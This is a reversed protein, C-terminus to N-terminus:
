GTNPAEERRRAPRRRPVMRDRRRHAARRRIKGSAASKETSSTTSSASSRRKSLSGDPAPRRATLKIIHYGDPTAVVDSVHGHTMSFAVNGFPRLRAWSSAARRTAAIAAALRPQRMRPTRRPSNPSTRAATSESSSRKPKALAAAVARRRRSTSASSIHSVRRREPQDFEAPYKDYHERAKPARREQNKAHLAYLAPRRSHELPDTRERRSAHPAQAFTSSPSGRADTRPRRGHPSFPRRCSRRLDRHRRCHATPRHAPAPSPTFPRARM